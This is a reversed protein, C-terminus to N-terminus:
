EMLEIEVIKIDEGDVIQPVEECKPCVFILSHHGRELIKPEGKFGCKCKVIAKKRKIIIKFKVMSKFTEELEEASLHALDGVEFSVSVIKDFSTTKNSVTKSNTAPKNNNTAKNNTATKNLSIQTKIDEIIKNAIILEHM